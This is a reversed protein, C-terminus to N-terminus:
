KLVDVLAVRELVLSPIMDEGAALVEKDTISFQEILAARKSSNYEIVPAEEIIDKLARVSQKVNENDGLVVFAVDMQGEHVGMSFAEEIQKKGSAYRMIEIGLDRAMCCNNEKARLAKRVAFLLHEEGAIKGADMAQIITKYDSSVSRVMKLFDPVSDISISGGTMKFEM